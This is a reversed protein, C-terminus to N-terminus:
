VREVWQARWAPADTDPAFYTRQRKVRGDSLELVAVVKYTSGDPYKLAGEATFTSGAGSLHVLTFLPSVAWQDPTGSLQAPKYEPLGGPYNEHITRYTAHGRIREGSQPWDEIYDDTRLRALTEYGNPWASIYERVIDAGSESM